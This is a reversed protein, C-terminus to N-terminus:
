DVKELGWWYGRPMSYTMTFPESVMSFPSCLPANFPLIRRLPCYIIMLASTGWEAKKTPVHYDEGRVYRRLPYVPYPAQHLVVGQYKM